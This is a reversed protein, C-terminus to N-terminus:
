SPILSTDKWYIIRDQLFYLLLFMVTSFVAMVSVVAFAMPIQISALAQLALYGMGSSAAVFEGVIAGVVALIAAVKLGDFFYPLAVWMRLYKFEQSPTAGLSNLLNEQEENVATLGDIANVVVPFYAIWAAIVIHAQNTGGLYFIFFPALAIRPLSNGGIVIPFLYEYLRDNSVLMIATIAGLFSAAVFGIAAAGVTKFLNALIFERLEWILTVINSPAPLTTEEYLHLVGTLLEWVGVFTVIGALPLGWQVVRSRKTLM